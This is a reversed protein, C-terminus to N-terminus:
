NGMGSAGGFTTIYVKQSDQPDLVMRHGGNSTSAPSANGIRAPIVRYRRLPNSAAPMYLEACDLNPLSTTCTRIAPSPHSGTSAQMRPFIFGAAKMTCGRQAAGHQFICASRTPPTSPLAPRATSALTCATPAMWEAGDSSRYIVGDGNNGISGDESRRAVVLYLSSDPALTIQWAFPTPQRTGTNKLSWTRRDDISKYVSRGFATVYLRRRDKPSAPDLVIDTMAAPPVGASSAVWTRGGDDSRCIGGKYSDTSTHRWM